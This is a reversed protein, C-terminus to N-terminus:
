NQYISATSRKDKKTETAKKGYYLILKEGNQEHQNEQPIKM